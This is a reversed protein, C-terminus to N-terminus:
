PNGHIVMVKGKTKLVERGITVRIKKGQLYANKIQTEFKRWTPFGLERALANQAERRERLVEKNTKKTPTINKMHAIYRM